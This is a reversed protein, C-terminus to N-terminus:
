RRPRALLAGLTVLTTDRSGEPHVRIVVQRFNANVSATVTQECQMAQRGLRCAVTTKGPNPFERALRMQALRNEAAVIALAKGRLARDNDAIVGTARVAAGLAVAVITLAILVEVLTFGNENSPM